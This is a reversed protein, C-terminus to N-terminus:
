ALSIWGSQPKLTSIDARWFHGQSPQDYRRDISRGSLKCWLLTGVAGHTVIAIDGAKHMQIIETVTQHVRKQAEVATEWGRYSDEPHAFFADAAAEFDDEPLYGTATRDNEGLGLHFSVPLKQSEALIAGTEQAKRECSTWVQTVNSLIEGSAFVTARRRGTSNLCWDTIPIGPEVSVEPHTIVFLNPM